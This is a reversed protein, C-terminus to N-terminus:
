ATAAAVPASQAASKTGAQEFVAVSLESDECVFHLRDTETMGPLTVEFSRGRAVTPLSLRASGDLLAKVNGAVVNAMEGLSDSIDEDTAEDPATGFMAAAIDRVHVDSCDIRITWQTDGTIHVTACHVVEDTPQHPPAVHPDLGLLTQWADITIQGLEEATISM